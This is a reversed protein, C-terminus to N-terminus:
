SRMDSSALVAGVSAGAEHPPMSSTTMTPPPSAPRNQASFSAGRGTVMTVAAGIPSPADEAQACPPMAAASPSPSVGSAWTASVMAAPAPMTSTRMASSIARSASSRM